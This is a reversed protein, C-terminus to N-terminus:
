KMGEEDGLRPQFADQIWLRPGWVSLLLELSAGKRAQPTLPPASQLVCLISFIRQNREKKKGGVKEERRGEKTRKTEKKIEKKGNFIEFLGCDWLLQTTAPCYCFCYGVAQIHLQVWSWSGTHGLATIVYGAKM